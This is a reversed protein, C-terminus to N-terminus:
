ILFSCCIKILAWFQFVSVQQSGVLPFVVLHEYMPCVPILASHALNARLFFFSISLSSILLSIFLFSYVRFCLLFILFRFLYIFFSFLLFHFFVGKPLSLSVLFTSLLFFPSLFDLIFSLILYYLTCSLLLFFFSCSM